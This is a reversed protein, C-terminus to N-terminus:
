SETFLLDQLFERCVDYPVLYAMGEQVTSVATAIGIVHGSLDCVPSGSNGRKIALYAATYAAGGQAEYRTGEYVGKVLTKGDNEPYGIVFIESDAAPATESLHLVEPVMKDIKLLAIDKRSDIAICEAPLMQGKYLVLYRSSPHDVVHANTLIYGDERVLFGSGRYHKAEFSGITYVQVVSGGYRQLITEEHMPVSEQVSVPSIRYILFGAFLCLLIALAAFFRNMRKKKEPDTQKKVFPDLKQLAERLGPFSLQKGDFCTGDRWGSKADLSLYTSYLLISPVGRRKALTFLHMFAADSECDADCIFVVADAALVSDDDHGSLIRFGNAAFAQASLAATSEEKSYQISIRYRM